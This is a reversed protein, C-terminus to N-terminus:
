QAVEQAFNIEYLTAGNARRSRLVKQRALKTLEAQLDLSGHEFGEVAEAIRAVRAATFARLPFADFVNLTAQRTPSWGIPRAAAIIAAAETELNRTM